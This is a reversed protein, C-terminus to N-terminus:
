GGGQDYDNGDALIVTEASQSVTSPVSAAGIVLAILGLLLFRRM